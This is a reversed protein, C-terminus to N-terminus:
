GHKKGAFVHDQRAEIRAVNIALDTVVDTLREFKESLSSVSESTTICLKYFLGANFVFTLLSIAYGIGSNLDIM